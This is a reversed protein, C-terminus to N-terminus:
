YLINMIKAAMQKPLWKSHTLGLINVTAVQNRKQHGYPKWFYQTPSNHSPHGHPAEPEHGLLLAQVAKCGSSETYCM